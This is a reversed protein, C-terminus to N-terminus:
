EKVEVVEAKAAGAKIRELAKEAGGKEKYGDSSVAVIQGNGAKLRWRFEKKEDEYVEFKAKDDKGAMQVLEIGHRADAKEKYGQGGTAMIQGNGAKLRWRFEGAKDKYLEFKLKGDDQARVSGAAFGVLGAVLVFWRLSTM